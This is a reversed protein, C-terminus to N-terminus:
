ISEIVTLISFSSAFIFYTIYMLTWSSTNELIRTKKNDRTMLYTIFFGPIALLTLLWLYPELIGSHILIPIYAFPFFLLPFVMLAAKKVGFINVMTKTKVKKDAECDIIDKTISGGILFLMAIIGIILPLPELANGFVSWSALIGFFGRPLGIWAQNLFLIDKIRPPISYTVTFITILLTFLFFMQNIFISISIALLYLFVAIIKAEMISIKGNPIPRYPKSIKDTSVDTIQNLTNSAGNLIALAFSAPLITMYLFPVLNGTNQNYFFSAIM